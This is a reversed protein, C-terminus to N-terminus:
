WRALTFDYTYTSWCMSFNQLAYVTLAVHKTPCLFFLRSSIIYIRSPFAPIKSFSIRPSPSPFPLICMCGFANLFLSNSLTFSAQLYPSSSPSFYPPLASKSARSVIPSQPFRLLQLCPHVFLFVLKSVRNVRSHPIKFALAFRFSLFCALFVTLCPDFLLASSFFTWLTHAISPQAFAGYEELYWSYLSWLRSHAYTRCSDTSDLAM